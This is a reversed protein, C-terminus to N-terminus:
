GRTPLRPAESPQVVVFGDGTFLMQFSEGSGRGIAFWGEKEMKDQKFLQSKM